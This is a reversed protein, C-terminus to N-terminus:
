TSLGIVGEQVETMGGIGLPRLGPPAPVRLYWRMLGATEAIRSGHSEGRRPAPKSKDLNNLQNTALNTGM